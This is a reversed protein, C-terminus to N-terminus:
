SIYVSPNALFRKYLLTKLSTKFSILNDSCRLDLPLSNWFKPAAVSFARDGYTTLRSKPCHLLGQSSSRLCRSPNYTHILEQLYTPALDNMARYTLLLIKYEIRLLVPLWHLNLLIPTIHEHKKNRTIIRAASNQVKQLKALTVSPLGVLLSNCYDLRSTVFAHVLQATFDDTLYKRIAGIKRLQFFAAKCATTVQKKMNLNSDFMVGLNRANESPIVVSKGIQLSFSKCTDMFHPSSIIVFETKDSNM